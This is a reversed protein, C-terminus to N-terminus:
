HVQITQNVKTTSGITIKQSPCKNKAEAIAKDFMEHLKEAKFFGCRTNDKKNDSANLQKQKKNEHLAQFNDYTKDIKNIALGIAYDSQSQTLSKSSIYKAAFEKDSSLIIEDMAQFLPSSKTVNNITEDLNTRIDKTTEQQNYSLIREQLALTVYETATNTYQASINHELLTHLTDISTLNMIGDLEQYLKFFEKGKQILEECTDNQIINDLQMNAMKKLIAQAAQPIQTDDAIGKIQTCIDSINEIACNIDKTDDAINGKYLQKVTTLTDDKFPLFSPSDQIKKLQNLKELSIGNTELLTKMKDDVSKEVEKKKDQNISNLLELYTGDDQIDFIDQSIKNLENITNKQETPNIKRHLTIRYKQKVFTTFNEISYIKETIDQTIESRTQYDHIYLLTLQNIQEMNLDDKKFTKHFRSIINQRQIEDNVQKRIKKQIQESAEHKNLLKFTYPQTNGHLLRKFFLAVTDDPRPDGSALKIYQQFSRDENATAYVIDNQLSDMLAMAHEASTKSIQVKDLEDILLIPTFGKKKIKNIVTLLVAKHNDTFTGSFLQSAQIKILLNKGPNKGAAVEGVFTKGTRSPGVMLARTLQTSQNLKKELEKCCPITINQPKQCISMEINFAVNNKAQHEETMQEIISVAKTTSTMVRATVTHKEKPNKHKTIEKLAEDLSLIEIVNNAKKELKKLVANSAFIVVSLGVLSLIIHVVLATAALKFIPSSM